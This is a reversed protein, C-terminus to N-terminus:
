ETESELAKLQAQINKLCEEYVSAQQKLIDINQEGPINQGAVAPQVAPAAYFPMNGNRAWGPLGTAYFQNRRGRGGGGGRGYGMGGRPAAGQNAYGPMDYGACLGAGRGTMPGMGNPGTRDGRPM